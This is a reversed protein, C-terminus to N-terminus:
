KIAKFVDQENMTKECYFCKAKLPNGKLSFMTQLGEINSICKPNLCEFLGIAQKPFQVVTKKEVKKNKIINVTSGKAILGIKEYEQETLERGEIFVLDKKGTSSSKSETNIAIAVTGSPQQLGLIQIIKLATGAPLHDLVTGNSIPRLRVDDKEMKIM